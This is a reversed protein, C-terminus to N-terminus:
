RNHNGGWRRANFTIVALAIVSSFTAYLAIKRIESSPLCGPDLRKNKKIEETSSFAKRAIKAFGVYIKKQTVAGRLYISFKEEITDDGMRIHQGKYFLSSKRVEAVPIKLENAVYGVIKSVSSTELDISLPALDEFNGRDGYYHRIVVELDTTVEM